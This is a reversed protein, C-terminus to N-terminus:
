SPNHLMGVSHSKGLHMIRNMDEINEDIRSLASISQGINLRNRADQENADQELDILDM